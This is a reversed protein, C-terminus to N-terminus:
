KATFMALSQKAIAEIDLPSMPDVALEGLIRIAEARKGRRELALAKNVLLFGKTEPDPAATLGKELYRLRKVDDTELSAKEKWAPAFRPVKALIRDIVERKANSDKAWEISLFYLYTGRPFFGNEEGRLSHVATKTTFFGRPSMADVQKYLTYAKSFDGMLLYTYAEDYLPYPWTPSLKAAKEFHAIAAKYDGSQGANRGLKHLKRAEESVSRNSRVEWDVEGTAGKLDESTLVRGTKSKFIVDAARATAAMQMSIVLLIALSFRM